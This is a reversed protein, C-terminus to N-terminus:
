MPAGTVKGGLVGGDSIAERRWDRTRENHNAVAIPMLVTTPRKNTANVCDDKPKSLPKVDLPLRNTGNGTMALEDKRATYEAFAATSEGRLRTCEPCNNM